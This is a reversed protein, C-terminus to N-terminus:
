TEFRSLFLQRLRRHWQWALPERGHDFRVLVRSGFNANAAEPALELDFQFTRQLTKMQGRDRPDVVFRGGGTETFAQSPLRDSASPVERLLAAHYTESSRHTLRVAVDVLKNRVLDIDDQAVVVRAIRSQQFLVYGLVEGRKAYRGPLDQAAPALFVGDFGSRIRLADSREVARALNTEKLTVEQRTIDAQVRDTFQESVLRQRLGALQSKLVRLQVALDPEEAEVLLDGTFVHASPQMSIQKVFGTDAARVYSEEPLWIVGEAVTHLPVPVLFLGSIILASGGFTISAARLRHRETRPSTLVYKLAKWIPLALFMAIGWIAILVGIVFFSSAVFISIGFLVFGRYAFALPAYAFLWLREGPQVMPPDHDNGFLYREVLWGWYRTSRSALNPMEALDCLIYYGDFRLLPNANFVVTSIGAILMVQFAISRVLGPEVLLWLFTALAAIFLETLMGAAGVLARKWKSRFAISASADVYPIPAFVLFMVGLEHVEGGATKTAYAHGLEHFLKLIPFVLAALVLSEVAFVRDAINDTLDGWHMAVLVLAPITAFLWIAAGLKTFIFRILPESLELFHDPDWGPLKIALPNGLSSRRRAKSHKSFRETMEVPNPAIDTQLLDMGHLQSLLRVVEGQTPADDGLQEVVYTWIEHVTRYGNMQGLLLYVAPTFRHVRGSATDEAVYWSAGRYRHRHVNLHCRLSPKLGSIRHWSSDLFTEKM